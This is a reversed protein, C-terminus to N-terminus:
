FDIDKEELVPTFFKFIHAFFAKFHDNNATMLSDVIMKNINAEGQVFLKRYHHKVLAFYEEIPNLFPSYPANYLM